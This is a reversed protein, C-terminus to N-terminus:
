SAFRRICSAKKFPRARPINGTGPFMGGLDSKHAISACFAILEDRV